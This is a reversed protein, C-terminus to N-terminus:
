GGPLDLEDVLQQASAAADRSPSEPIPDFQGTAIPKLDTYRWDELKRTPYGAARFAAMAEERAARTANSGPLDKLRAKFQDQLYAETM